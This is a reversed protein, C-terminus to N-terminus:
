VTGTERKSIARQVYFRAQRLHAELVHLDILDIQQGQGDELFEVFFSSALNMSVMPPCEARTGGPFVWALQNAPLMIEQPITM